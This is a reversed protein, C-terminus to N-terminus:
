KTSSFDFVQSAAVLVPRGRRTPPEFRWEKVAAVATDALYPHTDSDVAPMRVAGTEDIYFRVEVKGRVGQQEAEVAYKPAVTTLRAPVRDIENPRNLRYTYRGESMGPMDDWLFHNVINATIVAGELAFNFTLEARAPVPTGDFKAPTFQWEKLAAICERAFAEQTYGLVLWETMKGEASVSVAVIASGKTIGDMKVGLPFQPMPNDSNLKISEFAAGAPAALAAGLTLLVSLRLLTKM